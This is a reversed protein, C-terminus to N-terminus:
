KVGMATFGARESPPIKFAASRETKEEGERGQLGPRMYVEWKISTHMNYNENGVLFCAGTSDRWVTKRHKVAYAYTCISIIIMTVTYEATIRQSQLMLILASATISYYASTGQLFGFSRLVRTDWSRQVPRWEASLTWHGSVYDIVTMLM